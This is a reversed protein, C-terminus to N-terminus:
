IWKIYKPKKRINDPKYMPTINAKEFSGGNKGVTVDKNDSHYRNIPLNRNEKFDKGALNRIGEKIM